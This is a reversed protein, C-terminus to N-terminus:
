KPNIELVANFEFPINKDPVVRLWDFSFCAEAGAEVYFYTPVAWIATQQSYEYVFQAAVEGYVDTFVIGDETIQGEAYGMLSASYDNDSAEDIKVGERSALSEFADWAEISDEMGDNIEDLVDFSEKFEDWKLEDGWGDEKEFIDVGLSIRIKNDVISLGIPMTASAMSIESGGIVPIDDAITLNSGDGFLSFSDLELIAKDDEDLEIKELKIEVPATTTGDSNKM